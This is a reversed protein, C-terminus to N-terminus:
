CTVSPPFSYTANERVMDDAQAPLQPVLISKNRLTFHTGSPSCNWSHLQPSLGPFHAAFLDASNPQTLFICQERPEVATSTIDSYLGPHAPSSSKLIEYFLLPLLIELLHKDQLEIISLLKKLCRVSLTFVYEDLSGLLSTPKASLM